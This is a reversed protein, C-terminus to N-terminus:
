PEGSKRRQNAHLALGAKFARDLLAADGNPHNRLFTARVQQYAGELTLSHSLPADEGEGPRPDKSKEPEAMTRTQLLADGLALAM